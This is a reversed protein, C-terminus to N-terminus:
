CMGSIPPPSDGRHACRPVFPTCWPRASRVSPRGGARTPAGGFPGARGPAPGAGACVAGGEPRSGWPADPSQPRGGRCVDCRTPAAPGPRPRWPM